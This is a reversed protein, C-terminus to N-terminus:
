FLLCINKWVHRGRKCARFDLYDLGKMSFRSIRNEAFTGAFGYLIHFFIEVTSLKITVGNRSEQKAREHM